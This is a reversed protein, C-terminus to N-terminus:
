LGSILAEHLFLFGKSSYNKLLNVVKHKMPQM